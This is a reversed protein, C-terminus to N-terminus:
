WVIPEFGHNQLYANAQSFHKCGFFGRHASLPSPHPAELVLHRSRDIMAAKRRAYSGWLMFVVHERQKALAEIAADTFTEWGKGQHSGARHAEVTLTANLLLVGQEAWPGLHASALQSPQGLDNQIETLINRLSPPTSIGSPVSFALGEAQGPEHYPDQGLIVVRTKEFPCVDFARFIHRAPPYIAQGSCYASRVFSTLIEFYLKGFEEDLAKKWGEEMRVDVRM